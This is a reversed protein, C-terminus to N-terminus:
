YKLTNRLMDIGWGVGCQSLIYNRAVAGIRFYSHLLADHSVHNSGM